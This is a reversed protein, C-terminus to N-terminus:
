ERRRHAGDAARNCLRQLRRNGGASPGGGCENGIESRTAESNRQHHHQGARSQGERITSGWAARLATRTCVVAGLPGVWGRERRMQAGEEMSSGLLGGSGGEKYVWGREFARQSHLSAKVRQVRKSGTSAVARGRPGGGRWGNAETEGAAGTTQTKQQHSGRSSEGEARSSAFRVCVHVSTGERRRMLPLQGSRLWRADGGGKSHSQYNGYGRLKFTSM